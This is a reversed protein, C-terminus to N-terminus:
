LKELAKQLEPYILLSGYTSLHDHDMYLFKGDKVLPCIGDPCYADTFDLITVSDSAYASLLETTWGQNSEHKALSTSYANITDDTGASKRLADEPQYEQYPNDVLLYVHVGIKRYAETARDLGDRLAQAPPGGYNSWRVVLFVNPIHNDRVYEFVRQGSERCHAMAQDDKALSEIGIILPCGGVSAYLISRGTEHAYKALAPRMSYAHSDGYALVSPASTTIGLDCLWEASPVPVCDEYGVTQKATALYPDLKKVIARTDFGGSWYISFGIIGFSALSVLLGVVINRGGKGFRLPKEIFRYTLWALLISVVVLSFKLARSPTGGRTIYAFSLLPWHWLYLPFSILGVQVLARNGLLFRNIRSRMGGFILLATGLTPLLAWWGPFPAEKVISVAALCLLVLGAASALEGMVARGNAQSLKQGIRSRRLAGQLRTWTSAGSAPTKLCALFAGLMLEWARTQPSYFDMVPNSSSAHVNWIFSAIGIATVVLVPRVRRKYASWLVIPFLLYFQEEVALSWLHLLVKRETSTDFYGSEKWLLFNSTFTAGGVIHLGAQTYAVSGLVLWGIVAVALLVLILAPFIRKVRRSYFELFSFNGRELAGLIITTILFGSIVFFVDVGIFGAKALGPFAHFAVVALVAIGRLGDIDPRYKPRGPEDNM